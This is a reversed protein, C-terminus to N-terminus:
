NYSYTYTARLSAKFEFADSPHNWSVAYLVSGDEQIQIIKWYPDTLARWVEAICVYVKWTTTTDDIKTQYNKM